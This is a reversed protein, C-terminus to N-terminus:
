SLQSCCEMSGQSGPCGFIRGPLWKEELSLWEFEYPTRFRGPSFNIDCNDGNLFGGLLTEAFVKSLDKLQGCKRGDCSCTVSLSLSVSLCHLCLCSLVGIFWLNDSLMCEDLLGPSEPATEYLGQVRSRHDGTVYSSGGQTRILYHKERVLSTEPSPWVLHVEMQSKPHGPASPTSPLQWLTGPVDWPTYWSPTKKM